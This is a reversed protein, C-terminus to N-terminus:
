VHMQYSDTGSSKGTVKIINDADTVLNTSGDALTYKLESAANKGEVLGDFAGANYLAGDVAKKTQLNELSINTGIPLTIEGGKSGLNIRM